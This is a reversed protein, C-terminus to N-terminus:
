LVLNVVRWSLLEAVYLVNESRCAIEHIWGFEKMQRGTSGFMGIVTGDLKLKYVRGPFADSSYLYQTPGPTICIAWPAGNQAAAGEVSPQNGMWPHADPPIPVNIKIERLFTGDPDFVQIQRDGRDAVYKNYTADA